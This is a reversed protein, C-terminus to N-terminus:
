TRPAYSRRWPRNGTRAYGWTALLTELPRYCLHRIVVRELVVGGAFTVLFAVPVAAVLYYQFAGALHNQFFTQVAYTAYAGLMLMEGHAMNSGGLLGFTSALGLAAFLLVSALSVGYCVSGVASVM